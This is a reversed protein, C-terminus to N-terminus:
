MSKEIAAINSDIIDDGLTADNPTLVDLNHHEKMYTAAQKIDADLHPDSEDDDYLFNIHFTCGYQRCDPPVSGQRENAM